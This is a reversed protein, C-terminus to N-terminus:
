RELCSACFQVLSPVVARPREAAMYSVFYEAAKRPSVFDQCVDYKAVLYELPDDEWLAQDEDDHSMLPLMVGQVLWELEAKLTGWTLAPVVCHELYKIAQYLVTDPVAVGGLRARLVGLALALTACSMDSMFRLAFVKGVGSALGPRAYRCSAVTLM